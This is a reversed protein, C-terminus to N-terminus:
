GQFHTPCYPALNLFHWSDEDERRGVKLKGVRYAPQDCYGCRFKTRSFVAGRHHGNWHDGSVLSIEEYHYDSADIFDQKVSSNCIQCAGRLNEEDSSGGLANPWLHDLTHSNPQNPKGYDMSGGCVYCGHGKDRESKKVKNRTGDTIPEDKASLCRSLLELLPTHHKDPIRTYDRLYKRLRTKWEGTYTRRHYEATVVLRRVLYNILSSHILSLLEGDGQLDFDMREAASGKGVPYMVAIYDRLEEGPNM